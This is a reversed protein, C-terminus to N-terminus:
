SCANFVRGCNKPFLNNVCIAKADSPNKWVTHRSTGYLLLGYPILPKQGIHYFKVPVPSFFCYRAEFWFSNFMRLKNQVVAINCFFNIRKDIYKAQYKFIAVITMNAKQLIKVLKKM